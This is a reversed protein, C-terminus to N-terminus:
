QRTDSTNFTEDFFALITRASRNKYDGPQINSFRAAPAGDVHPVTLSLQLGNAKLGTSSEMASIKGMDGIATYTEGEYTLDHQGTWYRETGFAFSLEVLTAVHIPGSEMSTKASVSLLGM